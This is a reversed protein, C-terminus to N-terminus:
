VGPSRFCGGFDSGFYMGLGAKGPGEPGKEWNQARRRMNGWKEPDAPAKQWIQPPEASGKASNKQPPDSLPAGQPWDPGGESKAVIDILPPPPPTGM